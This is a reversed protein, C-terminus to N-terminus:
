GADGLGHAERFERIDKYFQGTELEAPTPIQLTGGTNPDANWRLVRVEEVGNQKTRKLWPGAPREYPRAAADFKALDIGAEIALEEGAMRVARDATEIGRVLEDLEDVAAGHTARLARDKIQDLDAPLLGSYEPLELFAQELEPDLKDLHKAIYNNREAAPLARFKDLKWLRRMQGAADTKDSTPLVMKKRQEKAEKRAQDITRRHRYLKPALQAAAFALVDDKIGDDTFKGSSRAESRRAEVQDVAELAGLYADQLKALTTNPKPDFTWLGVARSLPPDPQMPDSALAGVGKRQRITERGKPVFGLDVMEVTM